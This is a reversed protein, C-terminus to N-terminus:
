KHGQTFVGTNRYDRLYVYVKGLVYSSRLFIISVIHLQSVFSKKAYKTIYMSMGLLIKTSPFTVTEHRYPDVRKSLHYVSRLIELFDRDLDSDCFGTTFRLLALFWLEPRKVM